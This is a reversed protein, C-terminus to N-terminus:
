KINSQYTRSKEDDLKCCKKVVWYDLKNESSTSLEISTGTLDRVKTRGTPRLDTGTFRGHGFM